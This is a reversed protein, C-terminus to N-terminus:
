NFNQQNENLYKQFALIYTLVKNKNNKYYWCYNIVLDLIKKINHVNNFTKQKITNYILQEEGDDFCLLYFNFDFPNSCMPKILFCKNYNEIINNMMILKDTEYIKEIVYIYCNKDKIDKAERIQKIAFNLELDPQFDFIINDKNEMFTEILYLDMNNIINKPFNKYQEDSIIYVDEKQISVDVVFM